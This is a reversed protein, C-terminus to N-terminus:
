ETEHNSEKTPAAKKEPMKLEVTVNIQLPSFAKAIGQLTALTRDVWARTEPKVEHELKM